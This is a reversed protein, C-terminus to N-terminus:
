PELKYFHFSRSGVALIPEPFFQRIKELSETLVM